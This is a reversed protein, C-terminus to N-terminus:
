DDYTWLEQGLAEIALTIREFSDWARGVRHRARLYGHVLGTENIWHAQGGAAQIADRYAGCDDRLPDCDASFMVTPPMGSFDSAQLPDYTPDDSPAIGGDARVHRYFKVDELTLMPAQAHERYSPLSLDGGLGPYILVQGMVVDLRGRAHQAVCACLTAGASDGALVVGREYTEAIWELVTWADEFQAPHPYEPALRYDVAVVRYGTQECIECCVDDHSNLGGVVFGGGHCYMVTRIPDGAEYIRVSVNGVTRETVDVVEPRPARFAAAMANYIKRQEEISFTATEDPYHSGTERIFAWTEEDILKEYDM